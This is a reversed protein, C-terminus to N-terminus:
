GRALELAQGTGTDFLSLRETTFRLGVSDGVRAPASAAMRARLRGAGTDLTVLQTTGLYETAVIGGRLGAADDFRVHEPRVGLTLDRAAMAAAPRPIAVDASALSVRPNDPDLAGHFPLLNMAPSGMFGAVFLTAPHDYISQPPGVQEVVGHNMVAM